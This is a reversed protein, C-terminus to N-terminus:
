RGANFSCLSNSFKYGKEKEVLKKVLNMELRGTVGTVLVREM